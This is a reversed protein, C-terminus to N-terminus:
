IAGAVLAVMLLAVIVASGIKAARQPDSRVWETLLNKAAHSYGGPHTPEPFTDLWGFLGRKRAPELDFLSRASAFICFPLILVRGLPANRDCAALVALLLWKM